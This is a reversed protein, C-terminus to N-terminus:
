RQYCTKPKLHLGYRKIWEIEPYASLIAPMANQLATRSCGCFDAAVPLPMLTERDLIDLLVLAYGYEHRKLPSSLENRLGLGRRKEWVVQPYAQMISPMARALTMRHCFTRRAAEPLPTFYESSLINLLSKAYEAQHPKLLSCTL